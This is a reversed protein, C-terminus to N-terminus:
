RDSEEFEQKYIRAQVAYRRCISRAMNEPAEGAVRAPVGVALAGPPIETGELVVSGAGIISRCGVRAGSLITAGMGVVAETEIACGHVVAAHGVAVDAALDLPAGSDTHLIVGDQVSCRPGISIPEIDGRAVVGFWLNAEAAVSVAGSLIVGPALWAEPAVTPAVGQLSILRPESETM